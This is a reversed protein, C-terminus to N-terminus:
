HYFWHQKGRCGAINANVAKKQMCLAFGPYKGRVATAFSQDFGRENGRSHSTYLWRINESYPVYPVIVISLSMWHFGLSHSHTM